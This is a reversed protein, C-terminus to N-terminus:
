LGRDVFNMMSCFSRVSHFFPPFSTRVRLVAQELEEVVATMKSWDGKDRQQM